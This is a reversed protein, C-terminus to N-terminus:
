RSAATWRAIGPAGLSRIAWARTTSRERATSTGGARRGSASGSTVRVRLPDRHFKVRIFQGQRACVRLLEHESAESVLLECAELLPSPRQILPELRMGMEYLAMPTSTKSSRPSISKQDEEPQRLPEEHRTAWLREALHHRGRHRAAAQM